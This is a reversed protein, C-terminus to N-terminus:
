HGSPHMSSLSQARSCRVTDGVGADVSLVDGARFYNTGALLGEILFTVALSGVILPIAILIKM